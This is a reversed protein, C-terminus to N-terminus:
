RVAVIRCGLGLAARPEGEELHEDDERIGHEGVRGDIDGHDLDPHTAAPIGGVDGVALDGHESRDIDVVGVEEARGDLRDGSLLGADDLWTGSRTVAALVVSTMGVRMRAHASTPARRYAALHVKSVTGSLHGETTLHDRQAPQGVVVVEEHRQVADCWPSLAASAM